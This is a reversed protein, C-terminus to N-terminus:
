RTVERLAERYIDELAARLRSRGRHLLVRQNAESIDLLDCVEESTLGHVDRLSVVTRQREPLDQLAKALTTRVDSAVIHSEPPLAWRTPEGEDTWHGPWEDHPGRFRDPEVAPEGDGASALSSMPVVRAERVARTKALNIVIRLAWTRVSSRGAFSGIGKVVAMWAEQVVEEASAQTSVYDRALRLMVPSWRDVVDAFAAEDGDRLRRVLLEESM